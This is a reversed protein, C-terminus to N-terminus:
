YLRLRSEVVVVLRSITPTMAVSARAGVILPVLQIVLFGRREPCIGEPGEVSPRATTVESVSGSSIYVTVSVSIGMFTLM